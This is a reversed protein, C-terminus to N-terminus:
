EVQKSTQSFFHAHNKGGGWELWNEDILEKWIIESEDNANSCCHLM